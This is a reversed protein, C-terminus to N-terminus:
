PGGGGVTAPTTVSTTPPGPGSGGSPQAARQGPASTTTPAPATSTTTSAETTTPAPTTTSEPPAAASTTTEPTSATTATDSARTTSTTSPAGAPATGGPMVTGPPPPPQGQTRLVDFIQRVLPVAADAGFGSEELVAVVAYKPDNVPGFAAFLSTDAKKGPDVEATGTKGAVPFTDVPFGLFSNHATGDKNSVVGLLGQMLPDRIEPPLGITGRVRPKFQREAAGTTPDIVSRALSPSILTGGNALAAYADVLQLPTVSVDGQGIALNVNDGTFWDKNPFATPNERNRAIRQQPDDINGSGEDTLQVGTPSGLGFARAATQVPVPGLKNQNNWFMEGLRYFYVDSSVTLARPLDVSGYSTGNANSFTCGAGGQAECKEITYSGRDRYIDASNVLGTSLAAYATILKFTSGPAYASTVARDNLPAHAAPGNLEAFRFASIGGVFDAPNFTPYSALALLEGTKVDMVIAAGGPAKVEPDTPKRKPRVRADALSQALMQEVSRQLDADLTLQLDSGAGPDVVSRTGVEVGRADVEIMRQGPKGRLDDEYIREVGSKGIEDGPDYPKPSQKKSDLEDQNIAGVYGLVHAALPGMPYRRLEVRSTDVSPFQSARELLYVELEPSVDEAIPVPKFPDYRKDVLRARIDEVKMPVGADNLTRALRTLLDDRAAATPIADFHKRDITIVISERNDVMVKGNRDLIRGREGQYAVTRFLQGGRVEEITRPDLVQLYYLRAFLAAFLSFVVIGVAAVRLQPAPESM